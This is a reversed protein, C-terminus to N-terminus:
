LQGDPDSRPPAPKISVSSHEVRWRPRFRGDFSTVATKLGNLIPAALSASRVSADQGYPRRPAHNRDDARACQPTSPRETCRRSRELTRSRSRRRPSRPRGRPRDGRQPRESQGSLSSLIRIVATSSTTRIRVPFGPGSAREYAPPVAGRPPLRSRRSTLVPGTGRVPAPRAATAQNSPSM